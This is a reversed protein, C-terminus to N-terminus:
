VDNNHTPRTVYLCVLPFCTSAALQGGSNKKREKRQQLGTHVLNHPWDASSYNSSHRKVSPAGCNNHGLCVIHLALRSNSQTNRCAPRVRQSASPQQQSSTSHHVVDSTQDSSGCHLERGRAFMHINKGLTVHIMNCGILVVHSM